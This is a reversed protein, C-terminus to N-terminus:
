GLVSINQKSSAAIAAGVLLTCPLMVLQVCVVRLGLVVDRQDLLLLSLRRRRRLLLLQMWFCCLDRTAWWLVVGFSYIDAKATCRQGWLM